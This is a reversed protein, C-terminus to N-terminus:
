ICMLKHTHTNFKLYTHTHVTYSAYTYLYLCLYFYTIDDIISVACYIGYVDISPYTYENGCFMKSVLFLICFFFMFNWRFIWWFNGYLIRRGTKYKFYMCLQSILCVYLLIISMISRFYQMLVHLTFSHASHTHVHFETYALFVVNQTWALTDANRHLMTCLVNYMPFVIFHASLHQLITPSCRCRCCFWVLM